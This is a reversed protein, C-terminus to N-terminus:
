EYDRVGSTFDEDEAKQEAVWQEHKKLMEAAEEFDQVGWLSKGYHFYIDRPEYPISLVKEFYTVADEFGYINAYSMATEFYPRVTSSDPEAGTLEFYKKYSGIAEVFRQKRQERNRTSLAAKFYIAGARNWAAAHTSDKRLVVSLKDLACTYDKMELCAEAWHYYVETSGTDIELAKEYEVIALSPVGQYYNADGLNIHYEANERAYATKVSDILRAREEDELKTNNLDRIEKAEMEENQALARRFAKDAEGFDGRALYVLGLGNEFWAREKKAKKKGEEMIEEAEDLEDLHILTKGLYYMTPYHKSKRDLADSLWKKAKTYQELDYYILGLNYYDIYYNPDSSIAAELFGIAAQTNGAEVAERVRDEQFDFPLAGFAPASWLLIVAIWGTLIALMHQKLTKGSMTKEFLIRM